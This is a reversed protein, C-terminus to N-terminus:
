SQTVTTVQPRGYHSDRPVGRAPVPSSRASEQKWLSGPSLTGAAIVTLHRPSNLPVPRPAPRSWETAVLASRRTSLMTPL